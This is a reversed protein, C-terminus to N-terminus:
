LTYTSHLDKLSFYLDGFSECFFFSSFDEMYVANLVIHSALSKNPMETAGLSTPYVEATFTAVILIDLVGSAFLSGRRNMCTYNAYGPISPFGFISLVTDQEIVAHAFSIVLPAIIHYLINVHRITHGSRM